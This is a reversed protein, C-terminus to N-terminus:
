RKLLAYGVLEVPVEISQDLIVRICESLSSERCYRLSRGLKFRIVASRTEEKWSVPWGKERYHVLLISVIQGLIRPPVLNGWLDNSVKLCQRVSVHLETLQNLAM